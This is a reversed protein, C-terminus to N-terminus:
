IHTLIPALILCGIYLLKNDMNLIDLKPRTNLSLLQRLVFNTNIENFSLPDTISENNAYIPPLSTNDYHATLKKGVTSFFENFQDPTIDNPILNTNKSPLLHKLTKWM